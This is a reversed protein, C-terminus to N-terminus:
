MHWWCCWAEFAVCFNFRCTCFVVRSKWAGFRSVGERGRSHDRYPVGTKGTAWALLRQTGSKGRERKGWALKWCTVRGKSWRSWGAGASRDLRGHDSAKQVQGSVLKRCKKDLDRRKRCDLHYQSFIQQTDPMTKPAPMYRLCLVCCDCIRNWYTGQMHVKLNCVKLMHECTWNCSNTLTDPMCQWMCADEVLPQAKLYKVSYYRISYLIKIELEAHGAALM